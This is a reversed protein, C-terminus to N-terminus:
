PAFWLCPQRRRRNTNIPILSGRRSITIARRREVTTKGAPTRATSWHPPSSCTRRCCCLDTTPTSWASTSTAAPACRSTPRSRSTSTSRGPLCTESRSTRSRLRRTPPSWAADDLRRRLRDASGQRAPHLRPQRAHSAGPHSGHDGSPAPAAETKRGPRYEGYCLRVDEEAAAHKCKGPLVGDMQECAPSRSSRTGSSTATSCTCTPGCGPPRDPTSAGPPRRTEALM